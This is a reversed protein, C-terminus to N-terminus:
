SRDYLNVFAAAVCMDKRGSPLSMFDEVDWSGVSGQVFFALEKGEIWILYYTVQM